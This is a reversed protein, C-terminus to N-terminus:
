TVRVLVIGHKSYLTEYGFGTLDKLRKAKTIVIDGRMPDRTPTPRGYYVSFSPVNLRWMIVDYGRERALAAAEKVPGQQLSAGIPVVFVSLLVV